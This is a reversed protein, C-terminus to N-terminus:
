APSPEVPAEDPESAPPPAAKAKVPLPVRDNGAPPHAFFYAAALATALALWQSASWAVEVPLAFAAPKLWFFAFLAPVFAGLRVALRQKPETLPQALWFAGAALVLLGVAAMVHLPLTPGLGRHDPDDRVFEILFRVAGYGYVLAAFTRGRVPRRGRMWVVLGLLALGLVVEYIQTPHVPYAVDRTLLEIGEGTGRLAERQRLYAAAGEGADQMAGTWHPFTGLKALWGPASPGLRAGFDCGFLWCGVRTLALGAALPAAVVDGYVAFSVKQSRLFWLAAGLGGLFGGYATYGGRRLAFVAGFSPFEGLNTVVYVLRSGVLAGVAAVLFANAAVERSLGDREALRLSWFWGLVLSLGLMVGFSFIPLSGAEYSVDRFLYAILVSAFAALGGGLAANKNGRRQALVAYVAASLAVAALAWWLRLPAHPLPIRFLIPHM